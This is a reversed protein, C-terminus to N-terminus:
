YGLGEDIGVGIGVFRVIVEWRLEIFVFFLWAIDRQFDPEPQPCVYFLPLTLGTLPIGIRREQYSSRYSCYM